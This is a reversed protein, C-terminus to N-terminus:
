LRFLKEWGSSYFSRLQRVLYESVGEIQRAMQRKVGWM